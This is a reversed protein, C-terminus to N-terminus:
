KEQEGKAILEEIKPKLEFTYRRAQVGERRCVTNELGAERLQRGLPKSEMGVHDAVEQVTPERGAELEALIFRGALTVPDESGLVKPDKPPPPAEQVKPSESRLVKPDKVPTPSKPVKPSESKLVKPDKPPPPSKLVKPSESKLVGFDKTEPEIIKELYPAVYDKLRMGVKAAQLSLAKHHEPSVEIRYKKAAM